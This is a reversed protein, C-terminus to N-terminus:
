FPFGGDDEDFDDTSCGVRFKTSQPFEDRLRIHITQFPRQKSHPKQPISLLPSHRSRIRPTPLISHHNTPLTNRAPNQPLNPFLTLKHPLRRKNTILTPDYNSSQHQSHSQHIQNPTHPSIPQFQKISSRM